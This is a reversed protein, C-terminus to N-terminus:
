NLRLPRHRWILAMGILALMALALPLVGQPNFSRKEDVHVPVGNSVVLTTPEISSNADVAVVYLVLDGGQIPSITWAVTLEEGAGLVSGSRTLTPTWDEPDVSDNARPDTIDLHVALEPTPESGCNIISITVEVPTGVSTSVREPTVTVTLQSSPDHASALTVAITWLGLVAAILCIMSRYHKM